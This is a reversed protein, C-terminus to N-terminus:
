TPKHLQDRLEDLRAYLAQVNTRRKANTSVAYGGVGLLALLQTLLGYWEQVGSVRGDGNTDAERVINRADAVVNALERGREGLVDLGSQVGALAEDAQKTAIDVRDVAENLKTYIGCSPCALIALLLLTKM